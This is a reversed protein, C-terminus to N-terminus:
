NNKRRYVQYDGDVGTIEQSELHNAETLKRCQESVLDSSFVESFDSNEFVQANTKQMDQLIKDLTLWTDTEASVLIMQNVQKVITAQKQTMASFLSVLVEETKATTEGWYYGDVFYDLNGGDKGIERIAAMQENNIDISVEM